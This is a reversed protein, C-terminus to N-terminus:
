FFGRNQQIASGPALHPPPNPQRSWSDPATAAPRESGPTVFSIDELLINQAEATLGHSLAFTLTTLKLQIANVKLETTIMQAIIEKSSSTGGVGMAKHNFEAGFRYAKLEMTIQELTDRINPTTIGGKRAM